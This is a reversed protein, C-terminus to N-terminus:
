YNFYIDAIKRNHNSLKESNLNMTAWDIQEVSRKFLLHSGYYITKIYGNLSNVDRFSRWKKIMVLVINQDRKLFQQVNKNYAM